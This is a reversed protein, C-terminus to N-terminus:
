LRLGSRRGYQGRKLTGFQFRLSAYEEKTLQFMFDEPFRDLNRHVAKNLIKTEVGYMGALDRDLMIRRGRLLIIAQEIDHNPEFSEVKAIQGKAPM